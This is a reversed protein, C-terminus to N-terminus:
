GQTALNSTCPQFCQPRNDGYFLTNETIPRRDMSTDEQEAQTQEIARNHYCISLKLSSPMPLIPNTRM